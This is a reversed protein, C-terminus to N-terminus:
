CSQMLGLAPGRASIWVATSTWCIMRLGMVMVTDGDVETFSQISDCENAGISGLVLGFLSSDSSSTNTSLLLSGHFFSSM